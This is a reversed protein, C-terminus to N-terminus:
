MFSRTAPKALSMSYHENVMIIRDITHRYRSIDILHCLHRSFGSPSTIMSNTKKKTSVSATAAAPTEDSKNNTIILTSPTTSLAARLQTWREIIRRADLADMWQHRHSLLCFRISRCPAFDYWRDNIITITITITLCTITTTADCVLGVRFM